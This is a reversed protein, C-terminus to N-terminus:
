RYVADLLCIFCLDQESCWNVQTYMLTPVAHEPATIKKYPKQCTNGALISAWHTVLLALLEPQPPLLVLKNEIYSLNSTSIVLNNSCVYM